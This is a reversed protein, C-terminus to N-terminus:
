FLNGANQQLAACVDADRKFRQHGGVQVAVCERLFAQKQGNGNRRGTVVAVDEICVAEIRKEGAM